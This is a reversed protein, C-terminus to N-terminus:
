AFYDEEQKAPKSSDYGLLGIATNWASVLDALTVGPELAYEWTALPKGTRATIVTEVALMAISNVWRSKKTWGEPFTADLWGDLNYPPKRLPIEHKKAVDQLSLVPVNDPWPLADWAASGPKPCGHPWWASGFPKGTTAM